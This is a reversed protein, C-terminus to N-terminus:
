DTTATKELPDLRLVRAYSERGHPRRDCALLLRTGEPSFMMSYVKDDLESEGKTLFHGDPGPGYISITTRGRQVISVACHYGDPSFVCCPDMREDDCVRNEIWALPAWSGARCQWLQVGGAATAALYHGNSSFSIEYIAGGLLDHACGTIGQAFGTGFQLRSRRVWDGQQTLSLVSVCVNDNELRDALALQQGDSSFMMRCGFGPNAWIYESVFHWSGNHQHHRWLELPHRTEPSLNPNGPIALWSGHPSLQGRAYCSDPARRLQQAQWSAGHCDVVCAIGTNVFLFHRSDDSFLMTDPDITVTTDSDLASTWRLSCYGHWVGPATEGYLFLWAKSKLALRRGDPSFAVMDVATRCLEVDPSPQWSGDAQLRWIQLHGRSTVALLQRSDQSFSNGYFTRDGDSLRLWTRGTGTSDHRWVSMAPSPSDQPRDPDWTVFHRGDPSYGQRGFPLTHDCPIRLDGDDLYIRNTRLMRQTLAYFVDQKSLYHRYQSAMEEQKEQHAAGSVPQASCVLRERMLGTDLTQQLQHWFFPPYSRTFSCLQLRRQRAIQYWYRCTRAARDLDALELQCLVLELLHAPWRGIDRGPQRLAVSTDPERIRATTATADEVEVAALSHGFASRRDRGSPAPSCAPSRPTPTIPFSM